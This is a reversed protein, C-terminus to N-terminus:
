SLLMPESLYATSTYDDAEHIVLISKVPDRGVIETLTTKLTAVSDKPLTTVAKTFGDATLKILNFPSVENYELNSAEETKDGKILLKDDQSHISICNGDEANYSQWRVVNSLEESKLVASSDEKDTFSNLLYNISTKNLTGVSLTTEGKSSSLKITTIGKELKFSELDELLFSMSKLLSTKISFECEAESPFTYVLGGSLSVNGSIISSEGGLSINISSKTTKDLDDIFHKINNKLLKSFTTEGEAVLGYNESAFVMGHFPSQNHFIPESNAGLGEVHYILKNNKVEVVLEKSFLAKTLNSLSNVQIYCSGEEIIEIDTLNIKTNHVGAEVVYLYSDNEKINIQVCSENPNGSVKGALSNAKTVATKWTAANVKIKM